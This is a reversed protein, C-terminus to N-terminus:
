IIWMFVQVALLIQKFVGRIYIGRMYLLKDLLLISNVLDDAHTIAGYWTRERQGTPFAPGEAHECFTAEPQNRRRRMSFKGM